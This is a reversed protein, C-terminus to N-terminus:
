KCECLAVYSLILDEIACLHRKMEPMLPNTSRTISNKFRIGVVPSPITYMVRGVAPRSKQADFCSGVSYTLVGISALVAWTEFVCTWPASVHSPCLGTGCVAKKLSTAETIVIWSCIEFRLMGPASCEEHRAQKYTLDNLQLAPFSPQTRWICGKSVSAEGKRNRGVGYQGLFPHQTKGLVLVCDHPMYAIFHMEM